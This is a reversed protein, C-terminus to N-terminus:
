TRDTAEVEAAFGDLDVVTSEHTLVEIGRLEQAYRKAQEPSVVVRIPVDVARAERYRRVFRAINLGTSTSNSSSATLTKSTAVARAPSCRVSCAMIPGM